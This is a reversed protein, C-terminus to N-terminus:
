QKKVLALAGRRSEVGGLAVRLRSGVLWGSSGVREVCCEGQQFSTRGIHFLVRATMDSYDAGDM